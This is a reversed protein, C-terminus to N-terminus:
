VYLLLGALWGLLLLPVSWYHFERWVGAQRAMRLAILNAMSGISLGFGGISVGWALAKWEGGLGALFIAAPVNSILQSLFTGASLMGGPMQDIHGALLMVAPLQALLGLDVFMLVFLLLLLWDMALVVPRFYWLYVALLLPLLLHVLGLEASLLLPPYFLLSVWFLRPKAMLPTTTAVAKLRQARFALPIVLVVLGLLAIGIPLMALTFEVFGSGSVQWLLLNQPNGIPSMASGANVALAEFIILRGVPLEAVGHLALTLPVVIFLTVDNTILMSLAASFLVLVLALLRQSYLCGLLWQGAIALYGSDELGRSLLLLGALIAITQWQVLHSLGDPQLPVTWLLVPLVLILVVALRDEVLRFLLPRLM